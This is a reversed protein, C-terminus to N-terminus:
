YINIQFGLNLDAVASFIPFGALGNLETIFSISHSLEVYLGGGVGALYPGGRV